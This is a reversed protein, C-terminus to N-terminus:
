VWIRWGKGCRAIPGFPHSLVVRQRNKATPNNRRVMGSHITPVTEEM